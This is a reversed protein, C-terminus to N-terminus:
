SQHDTLKGVLSDVFNDKRESQRVLPPPPRPYEKQSDPRALPCTRRPHQRLEPAVAQELPPIWPASHYPQHSTISMPENSSATGNYQPENDTPFYSPDHGNGWVASLSSTSSSAASSQSSPADISFVSSSSSSASSSTSFGYPHNNTKIRPLNLTSTDDHSESMM